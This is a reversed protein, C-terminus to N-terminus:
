LGPRRRNAPLQELLNMPLILQDSAADLHELLAVDDTLTAVVLRALM